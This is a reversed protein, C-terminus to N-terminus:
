NGGLEIGLFSCLIHIGLYYSFSLKLPLLVKDLDGNVDSAEGKCHIGGDEIMYDM